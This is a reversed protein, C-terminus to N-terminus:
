FPELMDVPFVYGCSQLFQRFHYVLEDHTIGDVTEITYSALGNTAGMFEHEDDEQMVFTYTRM